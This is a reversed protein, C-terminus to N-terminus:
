ALSFLVAQLYKFTFCCLGCSTSQRASPAAPFHFTGDVKAASTARLRPSPAASARGAQLSQGGLPPEAWGRRELPDGPPGMTVPGACSVSSRSYLLLVTVTQCAMQKRAQESSLVLACQWHSGCPSGWLADSNKAEGSFCSERTGDIELIRLACLCAFYTRRCLLCHSTQSPTTWCM